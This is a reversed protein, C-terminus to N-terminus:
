HDGFRDIRRRDRKTPRGHLDAGPAAAFKRPRVVSRSVSRAASLSRSVTSTM